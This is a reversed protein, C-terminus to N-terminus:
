YSASIWRESYISSHMLMRANTSPNSVNATTVVASHAGLGDTAAKVDAVIDNSEKFDIWKDAGL